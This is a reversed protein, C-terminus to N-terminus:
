KCFHSLWTARLISVLMIQLNKLIYSAYQINFVDKMNEILQSGQRIDMDWM